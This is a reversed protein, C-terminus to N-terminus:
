AVLANIEENEIEDAIRRVEDFSPLPDPGRIILRVMEVDENEVAAKLIGNSWELPPGSEGSRMYRAMRLHRREVVSQLHANGWAIGKSRLFKLMHMHEQDDASCVSLMTEDGFYHRGPTSLIYEMLGVNGSAAASNVIMQNFPIKNEEHIMKVMEFHGGKAACLLADSDWPLEKGSMIEFIYKLKKWGYKATETVVSALGLESIGIPSESSGMYNIMQFHNNKIVSSLAKYSWFKPLSEREIVKELLHSVVVTHGEVCAAEVASMGFFKKPISNVIIISGGSAANTAIRTSMSGMGFREALWQFVHTHGHLGSVNFLQRVTRENLSKESTSDGEMEVIWKIVDLRGSFAANFLLNQKSRLGMSFLKEILEFKANRAASSACEIMNFSREHSLLASEFLEIDGIASIASFTNETVSHGGAALEKALGVHGGLVAFACLEGDDKVSGVKEELWAIMEANGFFAAIRSMLQFDRERMESQLKAMLSRDNRITAAICVATIEDSPLIDLALAGADGTKFYEEAAKQGPKIGVSSPFQECNCLLHWLLETNDKAYLISRADDEYLLPQLTMKKAFFAKIANSARSREAKNSSTIFTQIGQLLTKRVDQPDAEVVVREFM